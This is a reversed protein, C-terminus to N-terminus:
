FFQKVNAKKGPSTLINIRREEPLNKYYLGYISTLKTSYDIRLLM